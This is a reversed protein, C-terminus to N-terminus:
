FYSWLMWLSVRWWNGSKRGGKRQSSIVMDYLQILSLSDIHYLVCDISCMDQELQLIDELTWIVWLQRWLSQTMLHCKNKNSESHNWEVFGPEAGHLGTKAKALPEWVRYFLTQKRQTNFEGPCQKPSLDGFIFIFALGFGYKTTLYIKSIRSMYSGEQLTM